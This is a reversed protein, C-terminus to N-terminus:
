SSFLSYFQKDIMAKLLRTSILILVTLTGFLIGSTMWLGGIGDAKWLIFILPAFLVIEVALALLGIYRGKFIEREDTWHLTPSYLDLITGIIGTLWSILLSLVIWILTIMVPINILCAMIFLVLLSLFNIFFSALIKSLMVTEARIPMYLHNFWSKGDRSVSSISAPNIGLIFVTFGVMCLIITKGQWTKLMAGIGQISGSTDMILIVIFLVPLLLSQVIIQTFFTPTRLMIKMERVWSSYLVNKSQIKKVMKESSIAKRSGGSLGLVGKFYLKQGTTMMFFLAVMALACTLIFYGVGAMTMPETLSISSFYAPPYFKTTMQLLGNQDALQHALNSGPNTESSNLRIVINIGIAFIFTLLGAFVKIRDKNKSLNLFRMVFMLLVATGVFPIVPTILWIIIAFLYYVIGAHSHLGYIVLSPALIVLNTLYLTLFPVASKGLMIQYPQFPLAVFSEIDEAFYFSSLITGISIFVFLISIMVFLLGLIVSENDTPALVQYMAGIISNLIYLIFLAAPIAFIALFVYGIKENTSKGVLSLQMKVMIRILKLTNAM